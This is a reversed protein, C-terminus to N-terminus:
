VRLDGNKKGMWSGSYPSGGLHWKPLCMPNMLHPVWVWVGEGEFQVEDMKTTLNINMQILLTNKIKISSWYKENLLWIIITNFTHISKYQHHVTHTWSQQVTHKPHDYLFGSPCLVVEVRNSCSGQSTDEVFRWTSRINIM